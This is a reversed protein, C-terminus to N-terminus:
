LSQAQQRQQFFRKANLTVMELKGLDGDGFDVFTLRSGLDAWNFAGSYLQGVAVNLFATIVQERGAFSVCVRNGAHLASSIADFVKQGDATSVWIPGGVIDLISVEIPDNASITM